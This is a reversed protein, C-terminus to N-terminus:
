RASRVSSRITLQIARRFSYFKTKDRPSLADISFRYSGPKLLDPRVHVVGTPLGTSGPFVDFDHGDGLPKRDAFNTRGPFKSQGIDSLIPNSLGDLFLVFEATFRIGKSPVHDTVDLRVLHLVEQTFKIENM